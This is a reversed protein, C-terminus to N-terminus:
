RGNLVNAALLLNQESQNLPLDTAQKMGYIIICIVSNIKHILGTHTHSPITNCKNKEHSFNLTKGNKFCFKFVFAFVKRFCMRSANHKFIM